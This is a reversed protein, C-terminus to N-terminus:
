SNLTRTVLEIASDLAEGVKNRERVLKTVALRSEDSNKDVTTLDQTSRLQPLLVNVRAMEDHNYRGTRQYLPPMTVRSLKMLCDNIKQAKAGKAKASARNLKSVEKKFRKTKLTLSDLDIVIKEKLRELVEAYEDAVSVFDAPIVESNVIRLASLAYTKFIWSAKSMDVKDTTDEATHWFWMDFPEKLMDFAVRPVGIGWFSSDGIKSAREITLGEDSPKLGTVERISQLHLARFEAQGNTIYPPCSSQKEGPSDINFEAIMNASIDEWKNDVYYTSGAYTAHTHGTWFAFKVSRKLEKKHKALVRALELTVAAAACNDIAGDWWSCYHSSIMVYKKRDGGYLTAIPQRAKKWGVFATATLKMKVQSTELLQKIHEADRKTINVVPSKPISAYSEPTPNGWVKRNQVCLIADEEISTAFIQGISGASEALSAREVQGLGAGDLLVIKGSVDAKGIGQAVDRVYVVEAEIGEPRTSGSFSQVVCRIPTQQPSLLTLDGEGRYGAFCDFEQIEVSLGYSQLVDTLYKCAKLEAKNGPAKEGLSALVSVHSMATQSSYGNLIAKELNKQM